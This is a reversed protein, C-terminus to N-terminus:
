SSSVYELTKNLGGVIVASINRLWFATPSWLILFTSLATKGGRYVCARVCLCMDEWAMAVNLLKRKREQLYMRWLQIHKWVYLMSVYVAM